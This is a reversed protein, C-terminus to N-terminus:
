KIAAADVDRHLGHLEQADADIQQGHLVMVDAVTGMEQSLSHQVTAADVDAAMGDPGIKGTTGVM